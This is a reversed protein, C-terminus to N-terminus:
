RQRKRELEVLDFIPRVTCRCNHVVVGSAAYWGVETEANFVDACRWTCAKALVKTPSFGGKPVDPPAGGFRKVDKNPPSDPGVIHIPRVQGDGHFDRRHGCRVAPSTWQFSYFTDRIPQGRGRRAPSLVRDTMPDVDCAAVWGRTTLIPHRPTVSLDGAATTLTVVDGVYHRMTVALILGTVVTDGVVCNATEKIPATPDGPYRLRNGLPTVFYDGVPVADGKLENHQRDGTRGDDYALWELGLVGTQKYGEVIGTNEAQVMETRAILEAREPSFAYLSGGDTLRYRETPLVRAGRMPAPVVDRVTDGRTKGTATAAGHFSSHIRRALEGISPRPIEEVSAAVLDRVSNRVDRRMGSMIQQLLVEKSRLFAQLEADAVSVPGGAARRAAADIAASGQSVLIRRITREVDRRTPAKVIDELVPSRAGKLVTQLFESRKVEDVATQAEIVALRRFAAALQRAM